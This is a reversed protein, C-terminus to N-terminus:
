GTLGPTPRCVGCTIQRLGGQFDLKTELHKESVVPTRLTSGHVTSAPRMQEDGMREYNVLPSADDVQQADMSSGM